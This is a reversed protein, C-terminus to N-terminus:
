LGIFTLEEVLDIGLCTIYNHNKSLNLRLAAAQTYRQGSAMM